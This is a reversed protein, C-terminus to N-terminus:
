NNNVSILTTGNYVIASWGVMPDYVELWAERASIVKISKGKVIKGAAIAGIRKASVEPKVRVNVGSPAVVTGQYIHTGPPLTQDLQKAFWDSLIDLDVPANIGTVQGDDAYQWVAWQKWGAPMAAITPASFKDPKEPYWAVWVPYNASWAPPKGKQDTVFSWQYKSTYIVPTKGTFAQAQDLWTKISAAAAKRVDPTAVELGEVGLVPPLDSALFGGVQTVAKKYNAFQQGADMEAHYFHYAGRRISQAKLGDWNSQFSPDMSVVGESAKCIVLVPRPAVLSWDVIGQWKSVDLVSPKKLQYNM